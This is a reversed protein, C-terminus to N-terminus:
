WSGGGIKSKIIEPDAYVRQADVYYLWPIGRLPKKGDDLRVHSPNTAMDAKTEFLHNIVDYNKGKATPKQAGCNKQQRWGPTECTCGSAVCRVLSLINTKPWVKGSWLNRRSNAARLLCHRKRARRAEKRSLRDDGSPAHGPRFSRRPGTAFRGRTRRIESCAPCLWDANSKEPSVPKPFVEPM